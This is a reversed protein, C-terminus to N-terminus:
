NLFTFNQIWVQDPFGIIGYGLRKNVSLAPVELSQDLKDEILSQGNIVLM